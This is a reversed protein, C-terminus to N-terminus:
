HSVKKISKDTPYDDDVEIVGLKKLRHVITSHNVNFNNALTRTALNEDRQVATSLTQDDFDSSRVRGPKDELSTDGSKFPGFWERCRCESITDEGFLENVDRFSQAARWEKEFPNKFTNSNFPKEHFQHFPRRAELLAKNHRKPQTLRALADRVIFIFFSIHQKISTRFQKSHALRNHTMMIWQCDVLWDVLWGALWGDMWGVITMYAHM